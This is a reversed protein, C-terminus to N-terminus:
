QTATMDNDVYEDCYLICAETEASQRRPAKSILVNSRRKVISYVGGDRRKVKDNDVCEQAAECHLIRRRRPRMRSHIAQETLPVAVRQQLISIHIDTEAL